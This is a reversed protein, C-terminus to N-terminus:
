HACGPPHPADTGLVPLTRLRQFLFGFLYERPVREIAEDAVLSAGAPIPEGHVAAIVESDAGSAQTFYAHVPVAPHERMKDLIRAAGAMAVKEVRTHIDYFYSSAEQAGRLYERSETSM